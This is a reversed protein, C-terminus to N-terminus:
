LNDKAYACLTFCFARLFQPRLPNNNIEAIRRQDYLYRYNYFVNSDDELMEEFSFDAVLSKMVTNKIALTDDPSLRDYENWLDKLKHGSPTAGVLNLLCKLFLECAFALNVLGAVNQFKSRTTIAGEYFNVKGCNLFACGLEFMTKSDYM